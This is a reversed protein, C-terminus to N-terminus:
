ILRQVFRCSFVYKTTLPTRGSSKYTGFVPALVLEAAAWLLMPVADVLATSVNANFINAKAVGTLADTFQAATNAVPKMGPVAIGLALEVARITQVFNRQVSSPPM